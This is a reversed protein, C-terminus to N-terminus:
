VMRKQTVCICIHTRGATTSCTASPRQGMACVAWFLRAFDLSVVPECGSREISGGRAPTRRDGADSRHIVWGRSPDSLEKGPGGQPRHPVAMPGSGAAVLTQVGHRGRPPRGWRPITGRRRGRQARQARAQHGRTWQM